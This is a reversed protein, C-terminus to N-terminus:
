IAQLSDNQEEEQEKEKLLESITVNLAIAIKQVTQLGPNREGKEIYHVASQPIKAKQALKNQSLNRQKRFRKLNSALGM